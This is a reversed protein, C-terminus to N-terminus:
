PMSSSPRPRLRGKMPMFSGARLSYCRRRTALLLAATLLLWPARSSGSSCSSGGNSASEGGSGPTVTLAVTSIRAGDPGSALLRFVYEGPVDPKFTPNRAAPNSLQATSRAARRIVQWQWETTTQPSVDLRRTAGAPGTGTDIVATDAVAPVAKCIRNHSWTGTHDSLYLTGEGDIAIGYLYRLAADEGTGDITQNQSTSGGGALTSVVGAPSVMRLHSDTAVLVNDDADVAIDFNWLFRANAGDGDQHGLQGAAGAITTVVGAPTIRRITFNGTDAVYLNGLSDFALGRPFHFRAASGTGDAGGPMGATGALTTVTHDPAIKRITHNGTDAVYVNGSSDVALGNPGSFRANGGMADASGPSGALGAYYTVEGSPSIRRIVDNGTDAVYLYGSSDMTIGGPGNFRADTGTGNASGAEYSSGAFVSVEGTPTVRLITHRGSNAVYAYGSSDVAIHGPYDLESFVSGPGALTAVEGAATVTRINNSESVVLNGSNTVAISRPGLFRAASGVGDVHGWSGAEGALTTVVGAPTVRRIIHNGRDGVYVNGAADVAIGSPGNFRAAAGIGDIDGAVGPEGALTSVVGAPTIRRITHSGSDTVYVNGVSDVAVDLPFAFKATDGPGDEHGWVDPQGAFTSVTGTPSVKHIVCNWYDATYINGSGDVALGVPYSSTAGGTLGPLGAVTSIEGAPTIKRITHLVEETVYLNGAGDVTLGMPYVLRATGAPGDVYGGDGPEGAFTSVVGGPSIARIVHNGYDAVYVFGDAGVAVGSNGRFRAESGVGDLHTGLDPTGVFTTVTYEQGHLCNMMAACVLACAFVAWAKM